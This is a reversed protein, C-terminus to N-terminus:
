QQKVDHLFMLGKNTIIKSISNSDFTISPCGNVNLQKLNKLASLHMLGDDSIQTEELLLLNIFSLASLSKLSSNEIGSLSLNLFQLKKCKELASVNTVRRCGTLTLSTLLPLMGLPTVHENSIASVRRSVKESISLCTLNSLKTVNVWVKEDVETPDSIELTRLSLFKLFVSIVASDIEGSNGVKLTRLTNLHTISNWCAVPINGAHHISLSQLFKLSGIYQFLVEPNINPCRFVNLCTLKIVRLHFADLAVNTNNQFTFSKLNILPALFQIGIDTKIKNDIGLFTLTTLNAIKSLSETTASRCPFKLYKLSPLSCILPIDDDKVSNHLILSELLSLKGIV